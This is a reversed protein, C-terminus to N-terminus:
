RWHRVFGLHRAAGASKRGFGFAAEPGSQSPVTDAPMASALMRYGRKHQIEGTCSKHDCDLCIAPLVRLRPVVIPAITDQPLAAPQYHSKPVIFDEGVDVPDDRDDSLSTPLTRRCFGK